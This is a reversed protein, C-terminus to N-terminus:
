PDLGLGYFANGTGGWIATKEEESLDALAKTTEDHVKKYTGALIAVPWDSGFMLRDAGFIELASDVWPKIDEWTWNELDGTATNLGSVKAYVNPNEAAAAMQERWIRSDDADLPPKALHDVVMKLDPVRESLTPVHKLHNPFVAVVDFTLGRDALVQLGEIVQDQTVWDPDAIEHILHRIGRFYPNKGYDEDIKRAMEAPDLLPLWGVVGAVWDNAAATALMYDTDEYSDAAQVIVTKHMGVEDLQPELDPAEFNAHIPGYAPVLWPYDVKDLHWFHQHTDLKLM